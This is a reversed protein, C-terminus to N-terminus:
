PPASNVGWWSAIAITGGMWAVLPWHVQRARRHAIGAAATGCLSQFMTLRAVEKMDLPSLGLHLPLFLLTPTLIIGGGLGVWGSLFGGILGVTILLFYLEM